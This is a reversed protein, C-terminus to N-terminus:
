TTLALGGVQAVSKSKVGFHDVNYKLHWLNLKWAKEM